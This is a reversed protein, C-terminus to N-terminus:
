KRRSKRVTSPTGYKKSREDKVAQRLEGLSLAGFSQTTGIIFGPTGSFGLMNGQDDNREILDEIDTANAKLDGQLRGWDVGAKRAAAEIKSDTLPRPTNMLAEHVSLYKNQYNAAIAVRAAKESGEGFLPWDRFLVRVKPDSRILQFLADTQARCYPCQYDTYMVITVDYGKRAVRPADPDETFYRRAEAIGADPAPPDVRKASAPVAILTTLLLALATWRLHM